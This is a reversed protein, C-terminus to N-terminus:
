PHKGRLAYACPRVMDIIEYGMLDRETWLSIHREHENGHVAGQRLAAEPQNGDPFTLLLRNRTRKILRALIATGELKPLHEIVDMFFIFDYAPRKEIEDILVRIDGIDIRTYAYDWVPNRYAEHVEIGDVTYVWDAKQYRDARWEMTDRFHFGWRGGGVGIDLARLPFQKAQRVKTHPSTNRLVFDVTRWDGTPM